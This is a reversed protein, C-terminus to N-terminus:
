EEFIISVQAKAYQGAGTKVVYVVTVFLQDVDDVDLLVLGSEVWARGSLSFVAVVSLEDNVNDNALVDFEYLTSESHIKQHLIDSSAVSNDDVPHITISIPMADSETNGDSVLVTFLDQGYYNQSPSYTVTDNQLDIEGHSPPTEIFFTLQDDESDDTVLEIKITTDELLEISQAYLVPTVNVSTTIVQRANYAISSDLGDSAILTFRVTLSAGETLQNETPKFVVSNLVTQVEDSSAPVIVYNGPEGTLGSGLLMGHEQNYSISLSVPDDDDDVVLLDFFPAVVQTDDITFVQPLGTINPVDNVNIVTIYFSPLSSSLSSDSVSILIEDSVGVDNNTPEGSLSGTVTDFSAWSPKNSITFTLTNGADVDTATPLFLYSDDELISLSPSGYIVPPENMNIVSITISQSVNLNGISDDTVTVTIEFNNDSNSDSPLEYNPLNNFVVLGTIGNLSFLNADPGEVSYTLDDGDADFADLVLAVPQNEFALVTASSTMIPADAQAPFAEEYDLVGDSDSDIPDGSTNVYIGTVYGIGGFDYYDPVGDGDSDLFTNSDLHNTGDLFEQDDSVGDGDTDDVVNSVTITLLESDTLVGAGDDAVTITVEYVNDEDSDSPAEYDPTVNFSIVGSFPDLYFHSADVGSLSYVLTDEIDVDSAVVQMISFQNEPVSVTNASIIVPNDNVSLISIGLESAAIYSGSIYAQWFFSDNGFYNEVPQYILNVYDSSPIVQEQLVENGNLFLIGKANDPLSSVKVQSVVNDFSDTFDDLLFVLPNDEEISKDIESAVAVDAIISDLDVLAGAAYFWTLVQSDNDALDDMRTYLGYSGDGTVMVGSTLPDQSYVNSFNGLSSIVTTVNDSNSYFFAGSVPSNSSYIKIANSSELSTLIPAFVGNVINGRHKVPEDDNGVFDDQTGVWLRVNNISGGSRNTITTSIEIFSKNRQLSYRNEIELLQGDVDITGTSVVVGYGKSGDMPIFGSVDLVQGMLSEDVIISGNDNWSGTGDGGVGIAVNLPYSGFTLRYWQLNDAHYFFPQLLNGSANVSAETGSGFRLLGNDIAEYSFATEVLFILCICSIVTYVKMSRLYFLM